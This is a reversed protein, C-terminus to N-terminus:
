MLTSMRLRLDNKETRGLRYENFNRVQNLHAYADKQAEMKTLDAM